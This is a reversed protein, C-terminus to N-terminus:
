RTASGVSQAHQAPQAPQANQAAAEQMQSRHRRQHIVYGMWALGGVLGVGGVIDLTIAALNLATGRDYMSQIDPYSAPGTSLADNIAQQTTLAGVGLGGGIALLALSTGVLALPPGLRPQPLLNARDAAARAAAAQARRAQLDTLYSTMEAADAATPDAALYAEAYRVAEDLQGQKDATQALSRLFEPLPLLAYAQAFEKRADAYEGRQYAAKGATVHTRASQMMEPTVANADSSAPSEGAGAAPIAMGLSLLLTLGGLRRVPVRARSRPLTRGGADRPLHTDSLVSM